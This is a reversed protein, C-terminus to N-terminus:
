AAARFGNIQRRCFIRDIETVPRVHGLLNAGSEASSFTGSGYSTSKLHFRHRLPRSEFGRGGAHCASESTLSCSRPLAPVVHILFKGWREAVAKILIILMM